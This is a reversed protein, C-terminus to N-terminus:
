STGFLANFNPCDAAPQFMEDYQGADLLRRAAKLAAGYAARGPGAGTSLRRVGLRRLTAVDPVDRVALINLPLAIAKALKAITDADRVLPVFIGDAGAGGYRKARALTEALAAEGEALGLLYVDTRANVFLDGGMRAARSKIAEIKRAHLDPDARGDELNIGAVGMDVLQAAYDAVAEPIDSYGAESDVSVPVTVARLIEAVAGLLVSTPLAQGDAYGHAWALAASSTAVARAGAEESLRASAADWANALVLLEGPAHLARLQEAISDTGPATM